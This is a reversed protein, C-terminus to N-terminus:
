RSQPEGTLSPRRQAAGPTLSPDGSRPQPTTSSGGGSDAVPPALQIEPTSAPATVVPSTAGAAPAEAAPAETPVSGYNDYRAADRAKDAAIKEPSRCDTGIGDRAEAASLDAVLSLRWHGLVTWSRFDAQRKALDRQGYRRAWAVRGHLEAPLDARRELEAMPLVASDGLQRLYCVDLEVGRGGAEKANRVNWHAALSGIDTTALGFIALLLAGANVNLLWSASKNRLVRWLIALLGVAVLAMWLLILIRLRTMSYSEIYLAMRAAASAVLFLNQATWAVVLWRVMRHAATDSGPRLAILVFLAALLATAMLPFVGHHVYQALTFQQPLRQGSWLFAIDLGNQVAFLANFTLLSLIVSITSVGWVKGEGRAGPTAMPRRLHRPRLVHWAVGMVALWFFLRVLDPRGVDVGTLADRIIPNAASFLLLFVLGGAVPLILAPLFRIIAFPSRHFRKNTLKVFDIIPGVSGALPQFALRQFWRWADDHPGARTSLAAIGIMVGFLLWGAFTPRVIMAAAMVAAGTLAIVARRDRWLAPQVIGLAGAFALAFVGLTSGPWAKWFFLDALVALGVALALKTPLAPRVGAHFFTRM